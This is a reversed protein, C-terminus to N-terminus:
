SIENMVGKKKVQKMIINRNDIFCKWKRNDKM